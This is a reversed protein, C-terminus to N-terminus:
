PYAGEEYIDNQPKKTKEFRQIGYNWLVLSFLARPRIESVSTSGKDGPFLRATEM